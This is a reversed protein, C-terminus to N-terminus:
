ILATADLHTGLGETWHVFTYSRVAVM